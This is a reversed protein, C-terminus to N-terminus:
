GGFTDLPDMGYIGAIATAPFSDTSENYVRAYTSYSDNKILDAASQYDKYFPLAGTPEPEKALTRTWLDQIEQSLVKYADYKDAIDKADSLEKAAAKVADAGGAGLVLECEGALKVASTEARELYGNVSHNVSLSTDTGNYFVAEASRRASSVKLAGIGFVSVLVAGALVASAIKRNEPLKM